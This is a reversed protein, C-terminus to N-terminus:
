FNIMEMAPVKWYRKFIIDPQKNSLACSPLCIETLCVRRERSAYNGEIYRGMKVKRGRCSKLFRTYIVLTKTKSRKKKAICRKQLFALYHANEAGGLLESFLKSHSFYFITEDNKEWFQLTKCYYSLFTSLLDTKLTELGFSFTSINEFSNMFHLHSSTIGLLFVM